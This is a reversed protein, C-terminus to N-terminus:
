NRIEDTPIKILIEAKGKEDVRYSISGRFNNIRSQISKLGSGKEQRLLLQVQANNLGLGVYNFSLNLQDNSRMIELDLCDTHSHKLVNNIMEIIIRYMNLEADLRYRIGNLNSQYNITMKGTSQITKVLEILTTDLGMKVLTPPSIRNSIRRITDATKEILESTENLLGFLRDPQDLRNQANLINIKLVTVLAGIEDHLDMAIQVREQQEAQITAESIQREFNVEATRLAEQEKELRKKFALFLLYFGISLFAFFGSFAFILGIFSSNETTEV